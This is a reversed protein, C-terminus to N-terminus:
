RAAVEKAPQENKTIEVESSQFAPARVIGLVISSFKYNDGKADKVIKRVSPMDFYEIGRGLAYTMLKETLTQVFQEPHRLLANRLDTPGNIATGDVLKGSTDISTRTYRDMTRYSGITDFNELAFGLPDMIGHCANCTPNARHAEMIARITKPKEGDKNEKFAPRQASAARAAHGHHKRSYLRGRLVPSTRNPYATVMMVAGKGLLGFRNPDTLTVRRFQDGRVNEIGYHAALRENVFTYNATLLDVVSRDDHFVSDIFMEMERRLAARLPRDFAPYVFPDPEM